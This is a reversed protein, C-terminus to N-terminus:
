LNEIILTLKKIIEELEMSANKENDQQPLYPVHIFGMKISNGYHNLLMYMLDNCIFAGATLSVESESIKSLREVELNVFIGDSGKEDIKVGQYMNGENDVISANRYNIAIKELTVNKRGGAQGICLVVDPKIEEIKHYVIEFAKGYVVPVLLKILDYEGIKDDLKEVVLSSSNIEENNFPEFCTILLRKAV